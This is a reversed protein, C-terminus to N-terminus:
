GFHSPFCSCLQKQALLINGFQTSGVYKNHTQATHARRSAFVQASCSDAFQGNHIAVHYVFGIAIPLQECEDAILPM